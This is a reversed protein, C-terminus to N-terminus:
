NSAQKLRGWLTKQKETSPSVPFFNEPVWEPMAGQSLGNIIEVSAGNDVANVVYIAGDGFVEDVPLREGPGPWRVVEKFSYAIWTGDPSWTHGTGKKGNSVRLKQLNEDTSDIFYLEAKGEHESIFSIARIMDAEAYIVLFSSSLLLTIWLLAHTFRRKM